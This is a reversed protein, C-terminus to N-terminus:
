GRYNRLLVTTKLRVYRTQVGVREQTILTITVARASGITTFQFPNYSRGFQSSTPEPDQRVINRVLIRNTNAERLEGTTWNIRFTRTVGDEVTPDALEREGTEPTINANRLPLFYHLRNTDELQVNVSERIAETVFRLGQANSTTLKSESTANSFGQMGSMLLAVSGFLVMALTILSVMVETISFGRRRM